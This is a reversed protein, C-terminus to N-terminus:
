YKLNVAGDKIEEALKALRASTAAILDVSVSTAGTGETIAASDTNDAGVKTVETVANLTFINSQATIEYVLDKLSDVKLMLENLNSYVDATDETVPVSEPKEATDPAIVPKETNEPASEPTKINDPASVLKETNEKPASVAKKRGKGLLHFPEVSKEESSADATDAVDSSVSHDKSVADTELDTVSIKEAQRRNEEEITNLTFLDPDITIAHADDRVPLEQSNVAFEGSVTDVNQESVEKKMKFISSILM